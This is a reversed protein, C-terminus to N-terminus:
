KNQEKLQEGFGDIIMQEIYDNLFKMSITPKDYDEDNRIIISKFFNIAEARGEAKGQEYINHIEEVIPKISYM